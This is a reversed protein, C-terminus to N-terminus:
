LAAAGLVCSFGASDHFDPQGRPHRLAWYWLKGDRGEVVAALGLQWTDVRPSSAMAPVLVTVHLQLEHEGRQQLQVACHSAEVGRQGARYDDFEYAAWDGNPAFNFELYGPSDGARAFLEVCTHRWLQDRRTAAHTAVGSGAPLALQQLDGHLLYELQLLGAADLSGSVSIGTVPAARQAAESGTHTAHPHLPLSAFRSSM